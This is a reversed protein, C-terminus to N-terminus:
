LSGAIFMKFNSIDESILITGLQSVFFILPCKEGAAETKAQGWKYRTM